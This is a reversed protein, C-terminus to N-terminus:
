EVLGLVALPSQWRVRVESTLPRYYPSEPEKPSARFPNLSAEEMSGSPTTSSVPQGIPGISGNQFRQCGDPLPALSMWKLRSGIADLRTRQICKCVSDM